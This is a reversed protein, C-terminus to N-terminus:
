VYDHCDHDLFVIPLREVTCCPYKGFLRDAVAKNANCQPSAHDSHKTFFLVEREPTVLWWSEPYCIRGPKPAAIEDIPVRRFMSLDLTM